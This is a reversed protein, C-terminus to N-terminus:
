GPRDAPEQAGQCSGDSTHGVAAIGAAVEVFDEVLPHRRGRRWFVSCTAPEAGRVPVFSLGPRAYYRSMSRTGLAVGDGCRLVELWSEISSYAPATRVEGGRRHGLALWFARWCEGPVPDPYRADVHFPEEVLEEIDIEGRAALRHDSAMVAMLEDTFLPQVEYDEGLTRPGLFFGVDALGRAVGVLPDDASSVHRLTVTLGPHRDRFGRIIRPMLDAAGHLDFGVSFEGAGSLLRAEEVLADVSALAARAHVLLARGAPTPAAGHPSRDLLALGLDAELRRIRVSLSPQAIFLAEAARTFSGLEAVAVFAELQRLAVPARLQEPETGQDVGAEADIAWAGGAAASGYRGDIVADCL